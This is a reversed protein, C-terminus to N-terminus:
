PAVARVVANNTTIVLDGAPTIAIGRPYALLGPLPGPVIGGVEARGVATTVVGDLTIKRITHNRTDAVYVIGAPDAAIAVPSAFRAAAGTGDVSGYSGAVGALTSVVAGPTIKRITSNYSDVVYVNGGADVAIDEPNRFLAASATGDTSGSTAALGALTIVNGTPSIKRITNNATDAVYVNGAADVAVGEPYVFRAASGIGDLHGPNSAQGAFTSVTGDPTIKRITHNSTDAVYLNGAADAALGQPASFRANPGSGDASGSVEARGAFTSVVGAPTIKRITHNASDAIYINGAGDAVVGTPFSFRAAPGSGDATGPTAALGAVTTVAAAPTVKRITNNGADGVYVNGTSDVAVGTPYSFRAAVGVGEVSGSSRALGALTIVVRGPSIKRVTNNGSDAVYVNGAGDVAVAQPSNFRASPGTGDASGSSGATGAFTAVSGSPTIARITQNAYDAVYVTGGGTVAVALPTQFRAASGMADVSGPNGALGALTSVAGNPGIKRITDNGSDAVYVNGAGDVAVGRPNRFRAASGTGDNNGASGAVGALTTVMGASNIKRITHAGYDAVYVTGAADVAVGTPTTFRAASGLGDSNGISGAVGAFTSVVGAPTIKRITSNFLDAVYLNGATDSAVSFPGSFRAAPGTGDISGPGGVEGAVLALTGTVNVTATGFKNRNATSIARVHYTGRIRPATYAGDAPISGGSPGEDVSWAVATNSTGQSVAFSQTGGAVVNATDPTVTLLEGIHTDGGCAVALSLLFLAGIRAARTGILWTRAPSQLLKPV